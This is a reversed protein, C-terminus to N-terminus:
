CLSLWPPRLHGLRCLCGNRHELSRQGTGTGTWVCPSQHPAPFEPTCSCSAAGPREHSATQPGTGGAALYPFGWIQPRGGGVGEGGRLRGLIPFVDLYGLAVDVQPPPPSTSSPDTGGAPQGQRRSVRWPSVIRQALTGSPQLVPTPPRQRHYPLAGASVVWPLRGGPM